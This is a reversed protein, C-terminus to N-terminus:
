KPKRSPAKPEAAELTSSGSGYKERLIREVHRRAKDALNMADNLMERQDDEHMDRYALVLDMEEQSLANLGSPINGLDPAILRWAELKAWSALREITTLQVDSGALVRQAGGTKIGSDAGLRTTNRKGYRIKCIALVNAALLERATRRNM